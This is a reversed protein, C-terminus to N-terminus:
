IEASKDIPKSLIKPATAIFNVEFACGCKCEYENTHTTGYNDTDQWVLEVKSTSGCNPCKIRM